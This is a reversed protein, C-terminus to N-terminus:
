EGGNHAAIIIEAAREAIGYVATQPHASIQVPMVSWDVIRLNTTGHVTLRSDAVGGKARPLMAATGSPHSVTLMNDVVYQRWQADTEVAGTGPEYEATWVSRLPESHALRRCFKIAEVLGTIDYENDLFRPNIVPKGLPDAPNVHVSGRSLPHMLVAILTFFSKGHLPTGVAPYGKFGLYGDSFIIEAQPVSPDALMELKKQHGVDAPSAGGVAAQALAVLGADSTGNLIQAWNAFIYGGRRDDYYSPQGASWKAMEEAAATANFRLIDGSVLGDKLQYALQVRPHDQLNEGVGPLDILQEIGAAALAAAGGIGSLELMQPTQIAGASLIVERRARVVAGSALTVGTAAYADPGQMRLNIKAVQTETWVDLNSGALPLYATASYSRTYRTPDISAPQFMVGISDGSHSDNNEHISPVSQTVTPIWANRYAPSFRNLVARVPGDHGAGLPGGTYNEAKTMAAHMSSWNWGPNGAAEWQDYEAAAARDWVLLNVASSGGLVKGRNVVVARNGLHPQPVTTFNWDYKGGLTSGKRGPVNIGPEDPAAPGAEIVLIKAGPLGQSLRTAM